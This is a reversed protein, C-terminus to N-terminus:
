RFRRNHIGRAETWSLFCANRTLGPPLPMVPKAGRTSFIGKHTLDFAGIAIAEIRCVLLALVEGV